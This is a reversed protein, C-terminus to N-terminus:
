PTQWMVGFDDPYDPGDRSCPVDSTAFVARSAGQAMVERVVLSLHDPSTVFLVQGFRSHGLASLVEEQMNCALRLNTIGQDDYLAGNTRDAADSAIVRLGLERGLEMARELRGLRGGEGIMVERWNRAESPYSHLFVFELNGM